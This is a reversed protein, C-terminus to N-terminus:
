RLTRPHAPRLSTGRSRSRSSRMGTAVARTLQLSAHTRGQRTVAAPAALDFDRLEAAPKTEDGIVLRDLSGRLPARGEVYLRGQLNARANGSAGGACRFDLRYAGASRVSRGIECDSEYKVRAAKRGADRSLHSSVRRVDSEAIFDALGAVLRALTCAEAVPWTEIPERPLLPDFAAQVNVNEALPYAQRPPEKPTSQPAAVPVVLPDRNPLDGNPLRLGAPWRERATRALVAQVDERLPAATRDFQQRGSLRYQLAAVFLAARCRAARDRNGPVECGERWLLQHASFLNARDTANDLAYPIDVGREPELGYFTRKQKALAAAIARNANTEDWVQRPFIPAANQHCSTCITRNAYFVKPVGGARYDKVVQFEFRGAAENYSIVEIVDAKEQYGLFLRDKLLMGAHASSSRPETDAGVVVRPYAFFDPAAATRQLSRGLPILVSKVASAGPTDPQLEAELKKLLASFPFPIDYVKREGQNRVFVFDFLSRGVPPLNEGPTTPDVAWDRGPRADAHSASQATGESPLSSLALGCLIAALARTFRAATSRM